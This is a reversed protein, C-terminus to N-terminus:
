SMLIVYDFMGLIFHCVGFFFPIALGVIDYTMGFGCFQMLVCVFGCKMMIRMGKEKERERERL